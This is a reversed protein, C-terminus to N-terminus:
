ENKLEDAPKGNPAVPDTPNPLVAAATPVEAQEDLAAEKKGAKGEEEADAEEGAV